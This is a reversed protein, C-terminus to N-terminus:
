YHQPRGKYVCAVAGLCCSDLLAFSGQSVFEHKDVSGKKVVVAIMWFKCLFICEVYSKESKIGTSEGEWKQILLEVHNVTKNAWASKDATYNAVVAHCAVYFLVLGRREVHKAQLQVVALCCLMAYSKVKYM